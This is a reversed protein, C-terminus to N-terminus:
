QRRRRLDLGPGGTHPVDPTPWDPQAACPALTVPDWALAVTGGLVRGIPDYRTYFFYQEGPGLAPQVFRVRGCPDYLFQTQGANPGSTVVARGAADAVTTRAFAANGSQPGSVLANPLALSLTTQPGSATSASLAGAPPSPRSAGTADDQLAAVSQGLKDSM